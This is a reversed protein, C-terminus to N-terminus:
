EAHVYDDCEISLYTDTSRAVWKHKFSRRESTNPPSHKPSHNLMRNVDDDRCSQAGLIMM